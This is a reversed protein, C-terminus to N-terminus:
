FNTPTGSRPVATLLDSGPAAALVAPQTTSGAQTPAPTLTPAQAGSKPVVADIGKDFSTVDAEDVSKVALGDGNLEVPLGPNFIPVSLKPGNADVVQTPGTAPTSAQMARSSSAIFVGDRTGSEAVGPAMITAGSGSGLIAAEAFPKISADIGVGLNAAELAKADTPSAGITAEHFKSTDAVTSPSANSVGVRM